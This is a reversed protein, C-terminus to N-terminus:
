LSLRILVLGVFRCFQHLRIVTRDVPHGLFTLGYYTSFSLEPIYM